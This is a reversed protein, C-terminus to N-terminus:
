YEKILVKKPKVLKYAAIFIGIVMLCPVILLLWKDFQHMYMKIVESRKVPFDIDGFKYVVYGAAVIFVALIISYEVAIRSNYIYEFIMRVFVFVLGLAFPLYVYKITGFQIDYKLLKFMICTIFLQLLGGAFAVVFMTLYRATGKAVASVPFAMLMKNWGSKKDLAVISVMMFVMFIAAFSILMIGGKFWKEVRQAFFFDAENQGHKLILTAILLLLDGIGLIAGMIYIKKRVSFVDRIMLGLM